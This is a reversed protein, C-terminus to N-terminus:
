KKEAKIKKLLESAPEYDAEQKCKTIEAESLLKGEFAKKLISQRLAKAKELAEAISQEVKDCVSLRSEIERVIKLQEEKSCLNIHVSRLSIKDITPNGVGKVYSKIERDQHFSILQYYLFISSILPARIAFLNMALSANKNIKPMLYVRGANGIKGVLIEGGFLKSKSLFNYGNEDIYKLDIVFDKKEFNTARIMVAYDPTDKLIVNDRLNEYSGNSHYDTLDSIVDAIQCKIWNRPTIFTPKYDDVKSTDLKSPKKPKRGVEGNQEWRIVEKEWDNIQREYLKKREDDILKLLEEGTTLNSQKERWEKTFGGEFAKKLVAQRYVKLQEQAKKLDAIGKDLSAFLNEIKQVITRQIPLPPFPIQITLYDNFKLNRLNNSGAQYRIIKGTSYFYKLYLNMYISNAFSTPRILRLFNTCILNKGKFNQLVSKEIVVTRGVPQEPGGGSIEVLIDNEKLNRKELSEKKIKRLSSTIGKENDWNRFESGRICFAEVYNEDEFEPAKGWDGGLEFTSLEGLEVEIWDERM